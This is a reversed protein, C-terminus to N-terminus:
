DDESNNEKTGKKWSIKLTIGDDEPTVTYKVKLDIDLDVPLLVPQGEIQLSGRLLNGLIQNLDQGLKQSSTVLEQGYEYKM